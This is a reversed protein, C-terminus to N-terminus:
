KQRTEEEGSWSTNLNSTYAEYISLNYQGVEHTALPLNEIGKLM